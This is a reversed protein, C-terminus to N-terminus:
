RVRWRRTCRILLKETWRFCFLFDRRVDDLGRAAESPGVTFSNHLLAAIVVAGFFVVLAVVFFVAGNLLVGNPHIICRTLACARVCLYM